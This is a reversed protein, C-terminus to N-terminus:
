SLSEEREQDRRISDEMLRRLVDDSQQQRASKVPPLTRHKVPETDWIRSQLYKLPAPTWVEANWLTKSRIVADEAIRQQVSLPYKFFEKRCAAAMFTSVPKGARDMTSSFADWAMESQPDTVVLATTTPTAVPPPSVPPSPPSFRIQEPEEVLSTAEVRGREQSNNRLNKGEILIPTESIRERRFEHDAAKRVKLLEFYRKQAEEFALFDQANRVKWWEIFAPDSLGSKAPSKVTSQRVSHEKVDFKTTVTILKQGESRIRGLSDNVAFAESIRQKAKVKKPREPAGDIRARERYNRPMGEVWELPRGEEFWALDLACDRQDLVYAYKPNWDSVACMCANGFSRWLQWAYVRESLCPATAMTRILTDIPYPTFPQRNLEDYFRAFAQKRSSAM